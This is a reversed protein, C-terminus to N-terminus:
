KKGEAYKRESRAIYDILNENKARTTNLFQNLIKVMDAHKNMGLKAQLWNIIKKLGESDNKLTDNFNDSMEMCLEPAQKYAHNLVLDALLTDAIGSAKAINAWRELATIYFELRSRDKLISIDPPELNSM